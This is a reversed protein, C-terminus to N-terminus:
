WGRAVAGNLTLPATSLPRYAGIPGQSGRPQLVLSSFLRSSKSWHVLLLGAVKLGTYSSFAVGAVKLSSPPWVRQTTCVKTPPLGCEKPQAGKPLPLGCEKPNYVKQYLSAGGKPNNFQEKPPFPPWVRQTLLPPYAPLTCHRTTRPYHVYLPLCCPAGQLLGGQQQHVRWVM